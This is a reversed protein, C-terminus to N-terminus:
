QEKTTPMLWMGPRLWQTPVNYLMAMTLMTNHKFCRHLEERIRELSVGEIYSTCDYRYLMDDIEFDWGLHKTIIFRLMRFWRLGDEELREKPDGVFSLVRNELDEQGGFPDIIEGYPQLNEDVRQAMANITFDRRSLDEEITALNVFGPRRGDYDGESRCCTFDVVLKDPRMVRMTLFEEKEHIITLGISILYERLESFSAECVYDFDKPKLGLLQDRVTGGVLYM